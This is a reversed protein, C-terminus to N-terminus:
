ISIQSDIKLSKKKFVLTLPQNPKLNGEPNHIEYLWDGRFTDIYFNKLVLEYGLHEIFKILSNAEFFHYPVSFGYYQQNTWVDQIEVNPVDEFIVCDWNHKLLESLVVELDQFYQICSNSYLITQNAFDDATNFHELTQWNIKPNFDKFWSIAESTEIGIMENFQFGKEQMLSIIWGSGCGLDILNEFKGTNLYESLIQPRPAHGSKASNLFAVQRSKWIETPYEVDKNAIQAAAQCVFSDNYLGKFIYNEM